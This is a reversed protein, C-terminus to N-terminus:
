KSKHTFRRFGSFEYITFKEKKELHDLMLNVGLTDSAIHSAFIINIHAKKCKKFHEESQHMAVITDIGSSALEDYIGQPGETGGTFEIHIKRCRSSKNGIVIKPPNNNQAADKYEPIGYLIDVIKGLSSPKERDLMRRMFQYALNDCPTHICLLNIKLWRAIDIPRLHNAANVKRAVEAKRQELLSESCSLSVGEKAFVDVQLDMVEYFNAYARGQPHHSIVLDIKSGREKLKDVLLLEQGDVDIGVFMSKVNSEPNGAVIRTDSFPNFLVDVDFLEKEKPSLKEYVARKKKLIQAIQSQPRIDAEVGKKVSEQYLNKLKM